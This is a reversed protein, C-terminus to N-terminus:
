YQRPSSVAGFYLFHNSNWNLLLDLFIPSHTSTSSDQNKSECLPSVGFIWFKVTGKICSLPMNGSQYIDMKWARWCSKMPALKDYKLFNGVSGCFVQVSKVSQVKKSTCMDKYTYFQSVPGKPKKKKKCILDELWKVGPQVQNNFSSVIYVLTWFDPTVWVIEHKVHFSM